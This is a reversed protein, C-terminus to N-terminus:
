DPRSFCEPWTVLKCALTQPLSIQRNIPFGFFGAVGAFGTTCFLGGFGIRHFFSNETIGSRGLIPESLVIFMLGLSTM